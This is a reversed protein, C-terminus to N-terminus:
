LRRWPPWLRWGTIRDIVFVGFLFLAVPVGVEYLVALAHLVTGRVYVVDSDGVYGVPEPWWPGPVFRASVAGAPRPITETAVGAEDTEVREGDLLVYGRQGDTVIPEGTQVDRLRVEVTVHDATAEVIELDLESEHIPVERLAAPRVEVDVGRVLGTMQVDWGEGVSGESRTVLGHSAIYPEDIVDLHVAPPLTSPETVLGYSELIAIRDSPAATPGPEFPYAYVGLPHMPSHESSTGTHTRRVLEDWREDRAGYFRWVGNVSGGPLTYGLWPHSQYLVLGLDGDPYRAWAGTVSLTYPVVELSERVTVTEVRDTVNSQWGLCRTTNNDHEDCTSLARRVSVSIEAELTLTRVSGDDDVVYDLAPTHSGPASAVVTGDVLLRTETIGHDILQWDVSRNTAESDRPLEIRYDVTGLLEGSPRIYLPQDDNSVLARTAPQVAFVAAYADKVFVGDQLASGPPHISTESDTDPFEGHAGRNWRDVAAPPADLPIDTALALSRVESAHGTSAAELTAADADDRDGSWLPYFASANVDHGPETPPHGAVPVATVAAVLVALVFAFPRPWRSLLRM